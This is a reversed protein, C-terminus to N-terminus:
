PVILKEVHRFQGSTLTVTYVGSALTELDAVTLILKGSTDANKQYERVEFGSMDSIRITILQEPIVGTATLTTQYNEVPNPQLSVKIALPINDVAIVSSYTTTKDFD